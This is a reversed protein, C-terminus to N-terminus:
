NSRGSDKEPKELNKKYRGHKTMFEHRRVREKHMLEIMNNVREIKESVEKRMQMQTFTDKTLVQLHKYHRALLQPLKKRSARLVGLGEVQILPYELNVLMKRLRSYYFGTVDEVLQEDVQLKEATPKVFEKSKKPLM